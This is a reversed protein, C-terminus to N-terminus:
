NNKLLNYAVYKPNTLRAKDLADVMEAYTRYTFISVGEENIYYILQGDLEHAFVYYMKEKEPTSGTYPTWPSVRVRM